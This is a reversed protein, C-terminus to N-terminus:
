VCAMLISLVQNYWQLKPVLRSLITNDKYHKRGNMEKVSLKNPIANMLLCILSERQTRGMFDGVFAVQQNRLRMFMSMVDFRFLSASGGSILSVPHLTYYHSTSLREELIRGEM